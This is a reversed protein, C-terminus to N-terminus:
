LARGQQDADGPGWQLLVMLTKGMFKVPNAEVRELVWGTQKGRAEIYEALTLVRKVEKPWGVNRLMDPDDFATEPVWSKKLDNPDFDGQINVLEVQPFSLGPVLHGKKDFYETTPGEPLKPKGSYRGHQIRAKHSLNRRATTYSEGNKRMRGRIRKKRRSPM